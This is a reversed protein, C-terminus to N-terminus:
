VHGGPCEGSSASPASETNDGLRPLGGPSSLRPAHHDDRGRTSQDCTGRTGLRGLRPNGRIRGPGGGGGDVKAGALVGLNNQAPRGEGPGRSVGLWATAPPTKAIGRWFFVCHGTRILATRSVPGGAVGRGGQECGRPREPTARHPCTPRSRSPPSVSSLQCGAGRAAPSRESLRCHPFFTMQGTWPSGPHSPPFAQTYALRNFSELYEPRTQCSLHRVAAGWTLSLTDGSLTILTLPCSVVSLRPKGKAVGPGPFSPPLLHRRAGRPVERSPNLWRPRFKSLRIPAASSM